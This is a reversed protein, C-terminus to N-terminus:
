RWGERIVTEIRPEIVCGLPGILWPVAAFVATIERTGHRSSSKATDFM